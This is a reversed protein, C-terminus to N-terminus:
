LEKVLTFLSSLREARDDDGTFASPPSVWLQYDGFLERYVVLDAFDEASRAAGIVEILSGNEDRYIGRRVEIAATTSESQESPKSQNDGVEFWEQLKLAADRVSCQEMAAVFDLVNGRAGCQRSFCRFANKAPNISLTKERLNGRHIPCKGRLEAGVSKLDSVGYHDLVMQMTVAAKVAQFSVWQKKESPKTVKTTSAM